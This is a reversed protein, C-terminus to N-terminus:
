ICFIVKKKILKKKRRLTIIVYFVTINYIFIYTYSLHKNGKKKDM